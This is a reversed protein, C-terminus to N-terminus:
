TSAALVRALLRGLRVRDEARPFRAEAVFWGDADRRVSMIVAPLRDFVEGAADFSLFLPEGRQLRFRSLLRASAAQVSLVRGWCEERGEEEPFAIVVPLFRAGEVRM